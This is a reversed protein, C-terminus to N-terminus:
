ETHEIKYFQWVSTPKRANALLSTTKLILPEISRLGQKLKLSYVQARRRRRRSAKEYLVEDTTTYGYDFCDNLTREGM